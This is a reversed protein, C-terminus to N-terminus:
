IKLSTRDPFLWWCHMVLAYAIKEPHLLYEKLPLM